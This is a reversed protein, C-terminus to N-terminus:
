LRSRLLKKDIVEVLLFILLAAVFITYNGKLDPLFNDAYGSLKIIFNNAFNILFPLPNVFYVSGTIGFLFFTIIFGSEFLRRKTEQPATIASILKKSFDVSLSTNPDTNLIAFVEQYEEMSKQCFSCIKLHEEIKIAELSSQKDLYAQIQEETIHDSM